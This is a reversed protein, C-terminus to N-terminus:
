ELRVLVARLVLVLETLGVDVLIELLLLINYPLNHLRSAVLARLCSAVLSRNTWCILLHEGEGFQAM